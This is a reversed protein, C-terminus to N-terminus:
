QISCGFLPSAELIPSSNQNIWVNIITTRELSLTPTNSASLCDPGQNGTEHYLLLPRLQHIQFSVNASLNIINLHTAQKLQSANSQSFGSKM